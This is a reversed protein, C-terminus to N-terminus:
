ANLLEKFRRALEPGIGSEEHKFYIFSNRWTGLAGKVLECWKRLDEESYGEDRLRFYGFDATVVFPTTGKETDAVCLALNRSRLVDYVDDSFWSAHRFEFAAAFNTPLLVVIDKLRELDKKFYPPLQFLLPGLKARLMRATDCFYRLPETVDKLRSDHTIRKPVKLVFTFPEPTAAVWGEMMKATPMRYFTANIEVTSFREAYFSLMKPGPFNAPYFTGRWEPYNYGSTGVWVKMINALM